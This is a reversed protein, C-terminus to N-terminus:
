GGEESHGSAMVQGASLHGERATAALTQLPVLRLVFAPADLFARQDPLQCAAPLGSKGPCPTLDQSPRARATCLSAPVTRPRGLRLAVARSRRVCLDAWRGTTKQRPNDRQCAVRLGPPAIVGV